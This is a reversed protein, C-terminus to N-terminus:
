RRSGVRGQRCGIPRVAPSNRAAGSVDTWSIRYAVGRRWRVYRVFAGGATAPVGTLGAVGAVAGRASRWLPEPVWATAGRDLRDLTVAQEAPLRRVRGWLLVSPAAGQRVCMAFLPAAFSAASPKPSGDAYFLGSQWDGFARGDPGAPDGPLDRLLFQPWSKVAPTRTAIFEAQALLSAQQGPTFRARPDPPSTEYGYETLYVDAVAPALRGQDVLTRLTAALRPTSAVPLADPDRAEKDPTTRLSYPHHSWGDGPLTQFGACSGVTIPRLDADVCALERLFRLPLVGGRGPVSSGGSSTGGILVKADPVAAKIAPYAAMVM